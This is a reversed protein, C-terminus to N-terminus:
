QETWDNKMSYTVRLLPVVFFGPLPASERKPTDCSGPRGLDKEGSLMVNTM